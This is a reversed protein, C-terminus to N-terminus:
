RRWGWDYQSVADALCREFDVILKERSYEKSLERGNSGCRQCFERDEAFRTIAEALSQPTSNRTFIGVQKGEVIDAVGGPFNVVIPLGSALYDFFKNPLVTSFIDLPQLIMLGCDVEALVEALEDKPLPDLFLINDLGMSHAKEKLEAKKGGDGILVIKVGPPLYAAADVVLDLGNALGHAGTFIAVFDKELKYRKRFNVRSGQGFLDPDAGLPVVTIKNPPINACEVMRAKMRESVTVIRTAKRYVFREFWTLFRILLPNKLVGTAVASEPWIDRVEFVLPIRKLWSILLGPVAVTIPTSTAFVLDAGKLKVGERAAQLAFALFAKVRGCFGAQQAYSVNCVHVDIGDVDIRDVARESPQAFNSKRNRGCLMNVRHHFKGVLLRGFEYSRTGACGGRTSFHQHIYIINLPM